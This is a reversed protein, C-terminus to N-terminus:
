KSKLKSTKYEELKESEFPVVFDEEMFSDVIIIKNKEYMWNPQTTKYDISSYTYPYSTNTIFRQTKPNYIYAKTIEIITATGFAGSFFVILELPAIEKPRVVKIFHTGAMWEDLEISVSRNDQKNLVAVELGIDISWSQLSTTIDNAYILTNSFFLVLFVKLM